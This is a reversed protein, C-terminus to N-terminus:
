SKEEREAEARSEDIWAQEPNRCAFVKSCQGCLDDSGRHTWDDPKEVGVQLGCGDCLWGMNGVSWKVDSGPIMEDSVTELLNIMAAAALVAGTMADDGKATIKVSPKRAENRVDVENQGLAWDDDPSM